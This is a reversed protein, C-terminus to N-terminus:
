ADAWRVLTLGDRVPLLVQDVRPDAALTANLEAVARGAPSRHEAALYPEGQLLTNDICLLGSPALLGGDLLLRLYDPYGTKDADLFVFDFRAGRESLRRLTAPAPGVVVEVRRGAPAEALLERALDAVGPDIECALVRGHAPLAEAMALASYGTFTGIELVTEARSLRVLMHLLRGEVHGSLMEQELQVGPVASRRRWDVARTRGALRKLAPSEPSTCRSLYPDLGAALDLARRLQAPAAGSPVETGATLRELTAAVLGVPTVPRPGASGTKDPATM